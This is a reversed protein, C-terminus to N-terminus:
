YADSTYAAACWLRIHAHMHPLVVREVTVVYVASYVGTTKITYVCM